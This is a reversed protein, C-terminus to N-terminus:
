ILWPGFDKFFVFTHSGLLNQLVGGKGWIHNIVYLRTLWLSM